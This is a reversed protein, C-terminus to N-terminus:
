ASIDEKRVASAMLGNVLHVDPQVAELMESQLVMERLNLRELEAHQM